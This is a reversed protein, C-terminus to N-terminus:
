KVDGLSHLPQEHHTFPDGRQNQVQVLNEGSGTKPLKRAYQREKWARKINKPFCQVTFLCGKKFPTADTHIYVYLIYSYVM